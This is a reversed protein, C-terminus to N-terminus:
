VFFSAATAFDALISLIKESCKGVGQLFSNLKDKCTQRKADDDASKTENLISVLYEKQATDLEALEKVASIVEDIEKILEENANENNSENVIVSDGMIVGVMSGTVKEVTQAVTIRHGPEHSMRIEDALNNAEEIVQEFSKNIKINQVINQIIRFIESNELNYLRVYRAEKISERWLLLCPLSDEPIDCGKLRDKIEYGSSVMEKECYFIDMHNRSLSNLDDWYTYIFDYFQEDVSLPLFLSKVIRPNSYRIFLDMLRKYARKNSRFINIFTKVRNDEYQNKITSVVRNDVYRFRDLSYEAAIKKLSRSSMNFLIEDMNKDGLWELFEIEDPTDTSNIILQLMISTKNDAIAKGWLAWEVKEKERKPADNLYTWLSNILEDPKINLHQNNIFKRAYPMLGSYGQETYRERMVTERVYGINIDHTHTKKVWELFDIIVYSRLAQM